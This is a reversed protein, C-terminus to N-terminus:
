RATGQRHAPDPGSQSGADSRADRGDTVPGAARLKAALEDFHKAEATKGLLRYARALNYVPDLAQPSSTAARELWTVAEGAENRNLALRGLGLLADANKPDWQVAQRWCQEASDADGQQYYTLGLLEMMGADASKELAQELLERADRTRGLAILDLALNNWFLNAPLPMEKLEPDVELVRECAAAAQAYQKLEHHAIASLTQGPVECGHIAILRDALGLVPKWQKLSMHVAALRKLAIINSPQRTLVEYFQEVAREPRESQALGYARDQLDDLGLESPGAMRYHDEARELFGLRSLCRAALLAARPDRPDHKLQNQAIRLASRYDGSIYASRSESLPDFLFLYWALVVVLSIVIVAIAKVRWALTNLQLLQYSAASEESATPSTVSSACKM